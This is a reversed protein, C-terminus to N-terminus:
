NTFYFDDDPMKGGISSPNASNLTDLYSEVSKKMDDGTLFVINCYPIAKKAVEAKFIDKEEVLQAAEEVNENVYETSNSYDEMFKEIAETNNELLESRVVVVGTVLEGESVKNWEKTMDLVINMNDNQSLVTTVYPQPLMAVAGETESMIAAVETAESKYEINVDTAPNLGNKELIYNLTYEPTTGQGTTYITKGKLDTVTDIEDLDSIMYLVGLTNVAVVKIGGETKNYLVSALNCPVAAIDIDGKVIGATIEDATAYATVNYTNYTEGKDSESWAKIFGIATPGKLVAVNFVSTTSEDRNDNKSKNEHSSNNKDGCGVLVCLVMLMSFLITVLKRMTGKKIRNLM